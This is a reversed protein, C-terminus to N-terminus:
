GATVTLPTESAGGIPYRFAIVDSPNLAGNIGFSYSNVVGHYTATGLYQQLTARTSSGSTLGAIMMNTADYAVDAYLPPNGGFMASYAAAFTPAALTPVACLCFATASSATSGAFNAFAPLDTVDAVFFEATSGGDRLQKLLHGANDAYGGYVVITAGAKKIKAVTSSFNTQQDEAAVHTSGVILPSAASKIATTLEGGQGSGDDIIYVRASSIGAVYAAISNTLTQRGGVARHFATWGQSTLADTEGSPTIEPVAGQNLTPLTYLVESSTAPGIVGVVHKDAVAHEAATKATDPNVAATAKPDTDFLVPTVPCSAHKANYQALALRMGNYEAEGRLAYVSHATGVYGIKLNCPIPVSVVGASASPSGSPLTPPASSPVITPTVHPAASKKSSSLLHLPGIAVGAIVLLLAVAGVISLILGTRNKSPPGGQPTGGSLPRGDFGYAVPGMPAGPPGSVPPPGVPPAAGPPPQNPMNPTSMQDQNYGYQPSPAGGVPLHLPPQDGSPPQSVPPQSPPVPGPPPTSYYPQDWQNPPGSPGPGSEWQNPPGSASAAAPAAVQGSVFPVPGTAGYPAGFPVAATADFSSPGSMPPMSVPIVEPGPAPPYYTPAAGAGAIPIALPNPQGSPAVTIAALREGVIETTPPREAPDKALMSLILNELSRPAGPMHASLPAPPSYQHAALWQVPSEADYPSRGTLLEHLLCGLSYIDARSDLPNAGMQEPAIYPLTGMYSGTRTLKSRDSMRAIGFDVIKVQGSPNVLMLNAPKLDRHVLGARHAAGLGACAEVGIRLVTAVDFPGQGAARRAKLLQLLSAGNVLEMVLYANDGEVGFDYAAVVNPHNLGAVAQAERRFRITAADRATPDVDADLQILKVAIERLLTTDAARWVSGFGGAGLQTQLQYRGGLLMGASM